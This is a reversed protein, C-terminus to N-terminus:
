IVEMLKAKLSKITDKSTVKIGKSICLKKLETKDDPLMTLIIDDAEEKPEKQLEAEVVVEKVSANKQAESHCENYITYDPHLRLCDYMCSDKECEMIRGDHINKFKLIEM